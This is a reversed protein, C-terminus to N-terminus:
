ADSSLQVANREKRNSNVFSAAAIAAGITTILPLSQQSKETLQRELDAIRLVLAATDGTSAALLDDRRRSAAAVLAPVDGSAGAFESLWRSATALHSTSGDVYAVQVDAASPITISQDSDNAVVFAVNSIDGSVVIVALDATDRAVILQLSVTGVNVSVFGAGSGPLVPGISVFSSGQQAKLTWGGLGAAPFSARSCSFIQM